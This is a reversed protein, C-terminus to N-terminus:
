RRPRALLQVACFLLILGLCFLHDYALTRALESQLEVPDARTGLRVANPFVRMQAFGIPVACSLLAVAALWRAIRGAALQFATGAVTVLMVAGVLRAMPSGTVRAYYGAISALVPEPLPGPAGGLAQVDFMLDFWLVGVLFGGCLALVLKEFPSGGLV